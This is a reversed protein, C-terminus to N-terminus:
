LRPFHYQLTTNIALRELNKPSKELNEAGLLEGEQTFSYIRIYDGYDASIIFHTLEARDM